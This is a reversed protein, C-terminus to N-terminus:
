KYDNGGLDKMNSRMNNYYSAWMDELKDSPYDEFAQVVNQTMEDRDTCHTCVQSVMHKLSSFFGLDCLNLDPSNPPQTM